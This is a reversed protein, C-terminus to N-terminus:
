PPRRVYRDAPVNRRIRPAYREITVLPGTVPDSGRRRHRETSGSTNYNHAAHTYEDYVCAHAWLSRHQRSVFRLSSRRAPVPFELAAFLFLRPGGNSPVPFTPRTALFFTNAAIDHARTKKPLTRRIRCGVATRSPPAVHYVSRNKAHESFFFRLGRELIEVSKDDSLRVRNLRRLGDRRADNAARDGSNNSDLTFNSSSM